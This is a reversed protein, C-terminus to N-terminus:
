ANVGRLEPWRDYIREQARDLEEKTYGTSGRSYYRIQKLSYLAHSRTHMPFMPEPVQAVHELKSRDVEHDFQKTHEPAKAETIEKIYELTECGNHAFPLSEMLDPIQTVCRHVGYSVKEILGKHKLKSIANATDQTTLGPHEKIVAAHARAGDFDGLLLLIAECAKAVKSGGPPYRGPSTGHTPALVIRDLFSPMPDPSGETWPTRAMIDNMETFETHSQTSYVPDLTGKTVVPMDSKKVRGTRPAIDPMKIAEASDIISQVTMNGAEHKFPHREHGPQFTLSYLKTLGIAVGLGPALQPKGRSAQEFMKVLFKFADLVRFDNGRLRLAELIEEDTLKYLRRTEANEKLM